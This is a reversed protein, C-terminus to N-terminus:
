TEWFNMHELEKKQHHKCTIQPSSQNMLTSGKPIPAIGQLGYLAVPPLHSAVFSALSEGAGVGEQM